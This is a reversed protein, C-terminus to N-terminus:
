AVKTAVVEFTSPVVPGAACFVLGFLSTSDTAFISDQGRRSQRPLLEFRRRWLRVEAGLMQNFELLIELAHHLDGDRRFEAEGWLHERMGHRIEAALRARSLGDLENMGRRQLIQLASDRRVIDEAIVHFEGRHHLPRIPLDGKGDALRLIVALRGGLALDIRMEGGSAPRADKIGHALVSEKEVVGEM